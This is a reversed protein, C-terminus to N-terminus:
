THALVPPMQTDRSVVLDLTIGPRIVRTLHAKPSRRCVGSNPVLTLALLPLLGARPVVVDKLFILKQGLFLLQSCGHLTGRLFHRPKRWTHCSSICKLKRRRVNRGWIVQDWLSLLNFFSIFRMEIAQLLVELIMKLSLGQYKESQVQESWLM